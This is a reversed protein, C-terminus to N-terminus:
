RSTPLLILVIWLQKSPAPRFVQAVRGKVQPLLQQATAM